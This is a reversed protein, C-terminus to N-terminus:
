WDDDEHCHRHIHDHVPRWAWRLPYRMAWHRKRIKEKHCWEAIEEDSRPKDFLLEPRLAVYALQDYVGRPINFTYTSEAMAPEDSM